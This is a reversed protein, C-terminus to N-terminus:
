GFKGEAAALEKSDDRPLLHAYTDATIQISSHGIRSSVEKLNLGMGVPPRALCWSAFYHRLSHLGTYKATVMPRGADDLTPKGTDDLVPVTIGARVWSPILGRDILNSHNEVHGMGNPFAFHQRGDLKPCQTKWERLAALTKPPIPVNRQSDASKPNGITNHADARQVVHLESKKFDIDQWRLGRLESARLGCRIATLFFARWRADMTSQLLADIEDPTPIDRGVVLKQKQRKEVKRQRRRNTTMSRVVNHGIKGRELADSLLSSLSTTVKKVMAPSRPEAERQGPAPVGNRLKDQWERVIAVTLASVKLAGLYPVIHFKLHQGYQDVTTRELENCGDIWLKGAEEVTISRSNPTHVGKKLDVRVQAHFDEADKRRDFTRIHRKRKGREDREATSYTVVYASREEGSETQWARKRISM